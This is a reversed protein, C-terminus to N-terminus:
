NEILVFSTLYKLFYFRSFHSHINSSHATLSAFESRSISGGIVSKVSMPRSFYFWLNVDNMQGKGTVQLLAQLKLHFHLKLCLCRSAGAKESWVRRHLRPRATPSLCPCWATRARWTRSCLRRIPPSWRRFCFSRRGATTVTSVGTAGPVPSSVPWLFAESLCLSSTSQLKSGPSPGPRPTPTTSGKRSPRPWFRSTDPVM